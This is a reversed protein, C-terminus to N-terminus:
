KYFCLREWKNLSEGIAKNLNDFFSQKLEKPADMTMEVFRNLSDRYDEMEMKLESVLEPLEEVYSYIITAPTYFRCDLWLLWDNIKSADTECLEAAKFCNHLQTLQDENKMLSIQLVIKQYDKASIKKHIFNAFSKGLNQLNKNWIDASVMSMNPPQVKDNGHSLYFDIWDKSVESLRSDTDPHQASMTIFAKNSYDILRQCRDSFETQEFASM